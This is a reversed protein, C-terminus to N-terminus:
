DYNDHINVFKLYNDDPTSIDIIRIIWIGSSKTKIRIETQSPSTKICAYCSLDAKLVRSKNIKKILNDINVKQGIKDNDNPKAQTKILLKSIEKEIISNDKQIVGTKFTQWDINSESNLKDCSIFVFVSLIIILSRM